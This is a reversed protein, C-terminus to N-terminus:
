EPTKNGSGKNLSSSWLRLSFLNHAWNKSRWSTRYHPSLAKPNPHWQYIYWFPISVNSKQERPGPSRFGGLNYDCNVFHGYKLHFLANQAVKYITVLRPPRLDRPGQSCFDFTIYLPSTPHFLLWGLQQTNYPPFFSGWLPPPDIEGGAPSIPGGKEEVQTWFPAWVVKPFPTYECNTPHHVTPCERPTPSQNVYPKWKLLLPRDWRWDSINLGRTSSWQNLVSNSLFAYKVYKQTHSIYPIGQSTPKPKLIPKVGNSYSDFHSVLM